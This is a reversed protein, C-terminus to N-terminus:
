PCQGWEVLVALLDSVDVADDGNLDAPCGTCKGWANLVALMDSVDVVSDHNVDGPCTPPPLDGLAIGIIADRPAADDFKQLKVRLYMWNHDTLGITPGAINSAEIQSIVHDPLEDGDTDVLDDTLLILESSALDSAPGLFLGRAANSGTGWAWVHAAQGLNNIAVDRVTAGVPITFNAVTDGARLAVSGNYAIFNTTGSPSNSTAGSFLYNGDNNISVSGFTNWNSGDNAPQGQNAAAQGNVYVFNFASAAVAQLRHIHNEGNDSIHYNFGVGGNLRLIKGAAMDGEEFIKHFTNQPDIRYFIRRQTAAEPLQALGGVVYRTGDPLMQLRSTFSIFMDNAAPAPDSQSILYGEHTWLGDKGDILPNYFWQGNDGIGMTTTAGELIHQEAWSQQWVIQDNNWVFRDGDSFSGTFGVQGLGNTFPPQLVDVVQGQSNQDGEALVIWIESSNVPGPCDLDCGVVTDLYNLITDVVVPHFKLQINTLGGPCQHCYSMITGQTTCTQTEQCSGFYPQPACQDLPPCFDHTHSTGFNHGLEHAVVMIDWNQSHNDEFPYPFFGSLNGSLGYGDKEDCVAGVWAVGGGLDRGSLFHALHRQVHEMNETWYDQFQFLQWDSAPMTWPDDTDWLRLFSIKLQVNFHSIYLESTAGILTEVYAAAANQDDGFLDQLYERDTEIALTVQRCPAPGNRESRGDIRPDVFAGNGLTQCVHDRWHIMGPPLTNSNYILLDRQDNHPGSSIIQTVGQTSVYGYTGHPSFSLFVRSQPDDAVQGTYMRVDPQAFPIDPGDIRGLVYQTDDTTAKIRKLDLDVLTAQGGRTMPALVFDSLRFAYFDGLEELRQQDLTLAQVPGASRQSDAAVLPSRFTTRDSDIDVHEIGLRDLTRPDPQATDAAAFLSCAAIVAASTTILSM